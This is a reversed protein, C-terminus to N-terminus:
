ILVFSLFSSSRGIEIPIAGEFYREFSIVSYAFGSPILNTLFSCILFKVLSIGM